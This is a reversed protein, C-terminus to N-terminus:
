RRSRHDRPEGSLRRDMAADVGDSRVGAEVSDMEPQRLGGVASVAPDPAGLPEGAADISSV